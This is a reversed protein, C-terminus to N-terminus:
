AAPPNPARAGPRRDDPPEDPARPERAEAPDTPKGASEGEPEGEPEGGPEGALEGAPGQAARMPEEVPRAEELFTELDVLLANGEGDQLPVAYRSALFRGATCARDRFVWRSGPAPAARRASQYADAEYNLCCMLRGCSGSIKAPNLPLNQEKAMKLTVPDFDQLFGICCLRRGCPGIGDCRRAADRAGVQRLEIRTRFIGALDRVLERFDVRHDATFYFTIRNGDFQTEADIIKMQLGFHEVRERCREFAARDEVALAPLRGVEEPTAHRLIARAPQKKRRTLDAGECVTVQGLDYGREAEVVVHDGCRLVLQDPNLCAERRGGRFAVHVFPGQELAVEAAPERRAAPAGARSPAPVRGRDRGEFRRGGRRGSRRDNRQGRNM